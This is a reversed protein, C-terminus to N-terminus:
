KSDEKKALSRVMWHAPPRPPRPMRGAGAPKNATEELSRGIPRDPTLLFPSKTYATDGNTNRVSLVEGQAELRKVTNHIVASSNAYRRLAVGMANLTEKIESVTMYAGSAVELITRIAATISSVDVGGLADQVAAWSVDIPPEEILGTLIAITSKLQGLRRDIQARSELLEAHERHADELAKRYNGSTM